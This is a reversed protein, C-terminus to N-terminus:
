NQMCAVNDNILEPEYELWDEDPANHLKFSDTNKAKEEPEDPTVMTIGGHIMTAITETSIKVGFLSVDMGMATSNYFLSNKRVIYSYCNDIFLKLEIGKSDKSLKFSEVSGIKIQRYFVPSGIKLSSLRSGTVMIRLGNKNITKAPRNKTLSFQKSKVPSYGKRVKIFAGSLIASPNEIHDINIRVDEIWFLTDNVLLDKQEERILAKAIVEDNVLKLEKIQGIPISKYVIVSGEKLGSEEKLLFSIEIYKENVAGEDKYLKFKHLNQVKDSKLPTKFAIGGAIITEVSATQIKVGNLDAKVEIGSVDYFNTSSNIQEIYEKKVYIKIEVKKSKKNFIYSIVKGVDIGRYLIPSDAKVSGLSDSLLTFYKGGDKVYESKQLEKFSSELKFTKKRKKAKLNVTKLVIGNNMMSSISGINLYMGKLSAELEMASQIYFSSSDNVLYKYKNFVVIDFHIKSHNKLFDIGRLSGIVVGKHIVDIGIKLNHSIDSVLNFHRGNLPPADDYLVFNKKLKESKTKTEFTIYPGRAIADLGKISTLGIRPEVIWFRADKNALHSFESKLKIKFTTKEKIPDYDLSIIEGANSGKYFVDSSKTDINYGKNSVLTICKNDLYLKKFDDFLEYNHNDKTVTIGDQPSTFAIGGAIVSALSDMEVRLGALSARVEIGSMKWFKSTDKILHEYKKSIHLLYKVGKDTLKVDLVKGVNMKRYMAPAGIKIDSTEAYLVVNRGPDFIDVPPEDLAIFSSKFPLARLKEKDRTPPIAAIYAGSLITSLGTIETLSVKPSVKWYINGEKAAGLYQKEVTIIAVVKSVDHSAIQMDTIKGIQIGNYVLPTKGVSLGDGSNFTVSIQYGMNDYHKFIMWGAIAMAVIPIIWVVYISKKEKVVAEQSM